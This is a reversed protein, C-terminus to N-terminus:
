ALPLNVVFAAGRYSKHDYVFKKNLVNISGSMGSVIMKHNMHLGLGTGVSQHKTTFYPEFIKEIIEKDVGGGSDQFIIQVSGNQSKATIKLVRSDEDQQKLADKANNFFNM